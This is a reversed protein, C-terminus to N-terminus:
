WAAEMVPYIFLDWDCNTRLAGTSKFFECPILGLSKAWMWVWRSNHQPRAWLAKQPVCVQQAEPHGNLGFFAELQQHFGSTVNKM